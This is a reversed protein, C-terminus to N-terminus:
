SGQKNTQEAGRQNTLQSLAHASICLVLSGFSTAFSPTAKEDKNKGWLLSTKTTYDKPLHEQCSKNGHWVLVARYQFFSINCYKM